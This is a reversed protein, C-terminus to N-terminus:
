PMYARAASAAPRTIFSYRSRRAAIPRPMDRMVFIDSIIFSLAESAGVAAYDAGARCRGDACRACGLCRSRSHRFREDSEIYRPAIDAAFYM